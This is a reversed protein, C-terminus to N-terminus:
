AAFMTARTPITMTRTPISAIPAIPVSTRASRSEKREISDGGPTSFVNQVDIPGRNRGISLEARAISLEVRAISLEVRAILLEAPAISDRAVRTMLTVRRRM